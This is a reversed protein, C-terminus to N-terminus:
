GYTRETDFEYADKCHNTMPRRLIMQGLAYVGNITLYPIWWLWKGQVVAAEYTRSSFTQDRNGATLANLFQSGAALVEVFYHTM